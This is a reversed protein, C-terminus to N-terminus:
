IPFLKGDWNVNSGLAVCFRALSDAYMLLHFTRSGYTVCITRNTFAIASTVAVHLRSDTWRSPQTKWAKTSAHVRAGIHCLFNQKSVARHTQLKRKALNWLRTQHSGGEHAGRRRYCTCQEM